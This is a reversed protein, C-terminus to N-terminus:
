NGEGNGHGNRYCMCCICCGTERICWEFPLFPATDSLFAEAYCRKVKPLQLHLQKKSLAVVGGVVAVVVVVVHCSCTTRCNPSALPM